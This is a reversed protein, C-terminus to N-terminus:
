QKCLITGFVPYYTDLELQDLVLQTAWLYSSHGEILDTIDVNEIGPVNIPQIGALGQTLLSARFAVGLMWDNKSYANVFRGAVMKRVAEWNEDQISIPAGLLVVREILEADHETEALCQLCKFIARAGLSYGILTVPRNGQLGSLLVEALLKGAKDSRDVAITWKSDIFDTAALLVAPWALATLLTSLVTMMAGQKMLELALRSTLWDQIATSVAILNKSEWQLAYRELNDNLGEWPRVFDEEDFVFGSVLIGVALRGQLHNEGIAKFEFEDVSGVRRAMKSGTLGAGAAGFSAAVAVSGAVTGAASAAAAFGSAGIVPILTGLTPALAGLGAAIAPAALGGTIAMLAGGTVAAAGIIGGRKWKAWKKESSQKEGGGGSEKEKALAMASSAVMIEIVEMKIWKIDLWTALLRLAVRHRADYGKRRRSCKNNDERADALCASLLVYLVTVKRPYGIMTVEEIPKADVKSMLGHHADKADFMTGDTEQVLHVDAAEFDSQVEGTSYRERCEHEYERHKQRKSKSSESDKEMSLVTVDVAKSLAFEQDARESTDGSEESLLRLFAGIHHKAPSSGATEELGSWAIPNIELFTFVPRLLGSNQHVWLEPDESVSDSSSGSSTREFDSHEDSTSFGLPHTRHIQAQHLALGFLAGAAYRQTPTLFSTTAM